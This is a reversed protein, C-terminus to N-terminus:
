IRPAGLEFKRKLRKLIRVEPKLGNREYRCVTVKHVGLADALDKQRMGRRLRFNRM